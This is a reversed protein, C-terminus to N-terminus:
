VPAAIKLAAHGLDLPAGIVSSASSNRVASEHTGVTHTANMEKRGAGKAASAGDTSKTSVNCALAVLNVGVCSAVWVWVVWVLHTAGWLSSTTAVQSDQQKLLAADAM